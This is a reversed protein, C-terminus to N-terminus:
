EEGPIVYFPFVLNRESNTALIRYEIQILLRSEHKTDPVAQVALVEIRPEWRALAEQVYRRALGATGADLPLFQLRFLESGFEPRMVREGCHTLLIIRIAEEVDAEQQVLEIQGRADLRPPFKWGAGLFDRTPDPM